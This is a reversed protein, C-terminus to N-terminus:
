PQARGQADDNLLACQATYWLETDFNKILLIEQQYGCKYALAAVDEPTTAPYLVDYATNWDADSARKGTRLVLKGIGGDADRLWAKFRGSM